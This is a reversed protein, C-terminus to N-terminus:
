ERLPWSPAARSPRSGRRRTSARGPAPPGRPARGSPRRRHRSATSTPCVWGVVWSSSPCGSRPSSRAWCKPLRSSPPPSSCRAGSTPTFEWWSSAPCSSSPPSRRPPPARPSPSASSRTRRAPACSSTPTRRWARRSGSSCRRVCRRPRRRRWCAESVRWRTSPTWWSAVWASRSPQPWSRPRSTTATCCSTTPPSGPRSRSTSSEVRRWMSICARKTPWAPWREACSPRPPTPSVRGGPRSRTAVPTACTTRTTSSSRRASSTPWSSSTSAASTFTGTGTWSRAARCSIVSWPHPRSTTTRRCPSAPYPLGRASWARRSRPRQAPVVITGQERAHRPCQGGGYSLPYLVPRRLRHRLNSDQRPRWTGSAGHAPPAMHRLRPIPPTPTRFAGGGGGGRGRGGEPNSPGGPWGGRSGKPCRGRRRPDQGM